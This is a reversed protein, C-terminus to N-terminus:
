SLGGTVTPIMQIRHIAIDISIRLYNHAPVPFIGSVEVDFGTWEGPVNGFGPHQSVELKVGNKRSSKWAVCSTRLSLQDLRTRMFCVRAESRAKDMSRAHEPARALMEDYQEKAYVEAHQEVWEETCKTSGWTGSQGSVVHIWNKGFFQGFGM